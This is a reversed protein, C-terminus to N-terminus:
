GDGALRSRFDRHGFVTIANREFDVNVVQVRDTRHCVECVPLRLSVVKRSAGIVSSFVYGLLGLALAYLGIRGSAAKRSRKDHGRRTIKVTRETERGCLVCYPPLPQGEAITIRIVYPETGTVDRTDKTCSPCTGDANPIVRTHCHPCDNIM